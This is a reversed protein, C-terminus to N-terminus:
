NVYVLDVKTDTLGGSDRVQVKVMYTGPETFQKFSKKDASFDTDYVNDNEWDWRVELVDISDEPDTSGSADFEFKTST